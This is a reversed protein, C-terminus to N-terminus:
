AVRVLVLAALAPALWLPSVSSLDLSFLNSLGFSYDSTLPL